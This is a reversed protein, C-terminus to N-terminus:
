SCLATLRVYRIPGMEVASANCRAPPMRDAKGTALCESLPMANAVPLTFLSSACDDGGSGTSSSIPFRDSGTKDEFATPM